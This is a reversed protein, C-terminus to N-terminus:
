SPVISLRDGCITGSRQLSDAALEIVAFARLSGAIRRPRVACRVKLARGDRAVFLLDIPFQMFFTHVVNSPALILAHERPLHSRGLLGRNRSASDFAIELVAAVTLGTRENVLVFRGPPQRLLPLLFHPKRAGGIM